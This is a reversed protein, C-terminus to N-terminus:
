TTGMLKIAHRANECSTKIKGAATVEPFGLQLKKIAGLKGPSRTGKGIQSPQSPERDTRLAPADTGGNSETQKDTQERSRFRALAPIGTSDPQIPPVDMVRLQPDSVSNGNKKSGPGSMGM